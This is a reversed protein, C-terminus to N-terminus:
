GDGQRVEYEFGNHRARVIGAFLILTIITKVNRLDCMGYPHM